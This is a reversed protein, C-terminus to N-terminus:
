PGHDRILWLSDLLFRTGLIENPSNMLSVFCYLSNENSKKTKWFKFSSSMTSSSISSFSVQLEGGRLVLEKQMWAALRSFCNCTKGLKLTM